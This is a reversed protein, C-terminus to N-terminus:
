GRKPKRITCWVAGFLLMIAAALSFIFGLYDGYLTYFTEEKIIPIKVNIWSETFPPAMATIRGDPNVACTQGTSTARVMSRKNEVARFVAM